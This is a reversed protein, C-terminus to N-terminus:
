MGCRFRVNKLYSFDVHPVLVAVTVSASLGKLWHIWIYLIRCYLRVLHRKCAACPTTESFITHNRRM